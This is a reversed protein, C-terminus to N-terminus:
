ETSNGFEDVGPDFIVKDVFVGDKNLVRRTGKVKFVSNPNKLENKYTNIGHQRFEENRAEKNSISYGGAGTPTPKPPPPPTGWIVTSTKGSTPTTTQTSATSQKKPQQVSVTQKKPQQVKKAAEQKKPQKVTTSIKSQLLGSGSGDVQSLTQGVKQKVKEGLSAGAEKLKQEAVQKLKEKINKFM